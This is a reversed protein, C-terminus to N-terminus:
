AKRAAAKRTQNVKKLDGQPKEIRDLFAKVSARTEKTKLEAM